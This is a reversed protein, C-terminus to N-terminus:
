RTPSAGEISAVRRIAEVYKDDQKAVDVPLDEYPVLAEHGPDYTLMWAVWANHVDQPTVSTGCAKLLVAYALFLPETDFETPVSRSPVEDRILRALRQLYNGESM